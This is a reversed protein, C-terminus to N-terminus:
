EKCRGLISNVADEIDEEAKARISEVKQRLKEFAPSFNDDVRINITVKGKKERLLNKVLSDLMRERKSQHRLRLLSEPERSPKHLPILKNITLTKGDFVGICDEPLFSSERVPIGFLDALPSIAKERSVEPSDFFSSMPSFGSPKAQKFERKVDNVLEFLDVATFDAGKAADVGVAYSNGPSPAQHASCVPCPEFEAKVAWCNSCHTKQHQGTVGAVTEAYTKGAKGGKPNIANQAKIGLARIGARLEGVENATVQPELLPAYRKYSRELMEYAEKDLESIIMVLRAITQEQERIFDAQEAYDNAGAKQMLGILGEYRKLQAEQERMTERLAQNEKTLYAATDELSKNRNLARCLEEKSDRIARRIELTNDLVDRRGEPKDYLYNKILFEVQELYFGAGESRNSKNNQNDM